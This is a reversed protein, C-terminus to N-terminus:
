HISERLGALDFGHGIMFVKGLYAILTTGLSGREPDLVNAFKCLVLM